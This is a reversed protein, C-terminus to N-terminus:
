NKNLNLKSLYTGELFSNMRGLAVAFNTLFFDKKGDRSAISIAKSFLTETALRFMSQSKKFDEPIDVQNERFYNSFTLAKLFFFKEKKVFYVNERYYPDERM